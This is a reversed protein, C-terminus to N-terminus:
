NLLFDNTENNKTTNKNFNLNTNTLLNGRRVRFGNPRTLADSLVRRDHTSGEWGVLCYIFEMNLDCVRLVNM